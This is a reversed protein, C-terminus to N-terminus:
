NERMKIINELINELKDTTHDWGHYNEAELRAAQGLKRRLEPQDALHVLAQTLKEEDCPPVIWGTEGHKLTAPQGNEGSAICALGAAKYDFLKLGSYEKWGCYPSVGIDAQALYPAYAQATLRGTFEVYEGLGSARVMEQAEEMGSGAGILVLRFQVGAAIATCMARLLIHIGHWPYFGGLYVVQVPQQFAPSQFSKLMPRDLLQLLDTGNEIVTIEEPSVGWNESCNARWGDGTAIVHEAQNLTWKTLWVSIIRQLGHPDAQKAELDALPDGNYEAVWPIDMARAALLGGYNMWTFRELFIDYGGLVSQCAQAFRRSEFYGWYPLRFASQGRRVGKEVLRQWGRDPPLSEIPVFLKLDDSYWIQGDIRALLRVIHGMNLLERIIQRVHNAPGNYPPRRVEESGELLYGIKM